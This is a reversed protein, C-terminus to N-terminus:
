FMYLQVQFLNIHWNIDSEFILFGGHFKFNPQDYEKYHLMIM